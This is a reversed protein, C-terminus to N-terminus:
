AQGSAAFGRSITVKKELPQHAVTATKKAEEEIMASALMGVGSGVAVGVGSFITFLYCQITVFLTSSTVAICSASTSCSPTLGDAV